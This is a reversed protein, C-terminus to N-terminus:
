LYAAAQWRSSCRRTTSIFAAMWWSAISMRVLAGSYRLGLPRGTTPDSEEVYDIFKRVGAVLRLLPWTPATIGSRAASV